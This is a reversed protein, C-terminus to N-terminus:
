GPGASSTGGADSRDGHPRTRDPSGYLAYRVAAAAARAASFAERLEVDTTAPEEARRVGGDEVAQERRADLVRGVRSAAELCCLWAHSLPDDAGGDAQRDAQRLVADVLLKVEEPGAGVVASPEM